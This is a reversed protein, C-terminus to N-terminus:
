RDREGEKRPRQQRLTGATPTRAASITKATTTTTDTAGSLDHHQQMHERLLAARLDDTELPATEEHATTHLLAPVASLM